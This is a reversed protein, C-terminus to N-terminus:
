CWLRKQEREVLRGAISAKPIQDLYVSEGQQIPWHVLYLRTEESVQRCGEGDTSSARSLREKEANSTIRKLRISLCRHSRVPVAEL